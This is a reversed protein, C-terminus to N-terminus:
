MRFQNFFYIFAVDLLESRQANTMSAQSDVAEIIQIVSCWDTTPSRADVETGAPSTATL